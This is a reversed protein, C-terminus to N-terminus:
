GVQLSSSLLTLSLGLRAFIQMQDEAVAKATITKLPIAEPWRSAMCVFTLLFRAGGKAKPLPGVLDLACCDFPESIVPHRQMITQRNGQKNVKQCM